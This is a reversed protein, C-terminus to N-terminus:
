RNAGVPAELARDALREFRATNRLGDLRIDTRIWAQDPERAEISLSLEQIAREDDGVSLALTATAFHTANHRTALLTRALDPRGLRAEIEGRAFALSPFGCTEDDWGAAVAAALATDGDYIEALALYFRAEAPVDGTRPGLQDRVTEFRRSQFQCIAEAVDQHSSLPELDRARRFM